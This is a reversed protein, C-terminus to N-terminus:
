PAQDKRTFVAMSRNERRLYRQAVRLVDVTTVEQLKRAAQNLERFSSLGEDELLENLIEQNGGIKRLATFVLYNKAQSLEWETVPAHSLRDLQTEIAQLLPAVPRGAPAESDISFFGDHRLSNQRADVRTGLGKPVIVHFLRGTPGDFIQAAVQLPYVDQSLAGPTRFFLTLRPPTEAVFRAPGEPPEHPRSAGPAVAGPSASASAGPSAPASARSSASSAPRGPLRELYRRALALAEQPDFDGVLVATLNDASYHRRFFDEVEARDLSMIEAPWGSVPTGYPSNGFFGARFAEQQRGVPTSEIRKRREELVVNRETYFERFVPHLLRESEMWFWLELKNRPLTVFYTTMDEM